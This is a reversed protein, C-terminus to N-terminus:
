RHSQPRLSLRAPAVLERLKRATQLLLIADLSLSQNLVYHRDIEARRAYDMSPMDSVQWAGTIGPRVDRVLSLYEPYRDLEPPVIPRPGVLGMDGALVNLLQPLEDLGSRRLLRGFRTVRTDDRDSLKYGSAVYRAHLKPTSRLIEEAGPCMTRFKYMRFRAGRRGVREQTFFVTGQSTAKVLLAIGIGLPALAVILTSAAAIDVARRAVRARGTGMDRGRSVM